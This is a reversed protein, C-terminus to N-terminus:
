LPSHIIQIQNTSIITTIKEDITKSCNESFMKFLCKMYSLTKTFGSVLYIEVFNQLELCTSSIDSAKKFLLIKM